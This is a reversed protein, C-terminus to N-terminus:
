ASGGGLAAEQADLRRRNAAIQARKAQNSGAPWMPTGDNYHGIPAPAEFPARGGGRGGRGGGNRGGRGGGRGLGTGWAFGSGRGANSPGAVNTGGGQAANLSAGKNNHSFGKKNFPQKRVGANARAVFETTHRATNNHIIIAHEQLAQLSSWKHGTTPNILCASRLRETLGNFFFQILDTEASKPEGARVVLSNFFRVYETAAQNAQMSVKHLQARAKLHRDPHAFTTLLTNVFMEWTLTQNARRAPMAVATWASLAKDTLLHTAHMHWDEKPIRCGSLYGEFRFIAEEVDGASKDGSFKSPEPLKMFAGRAGEAGGGSVVPNIAVPNNGGATVAAFTPAATFAHALAPTPAPVPAIPPAPAQIPAPAQTPAPAPVAAAALAAAPAHAAHQAEAPQQQHQQAAAENAPAESEWAGEDQEEGSQEEEWGEQQRQLQQLYTHISALATELQQPAAALKADVGKMLQELNRVTNGLDFLMSSHAGYTNLQAAIGKVAMRNPLNDAAEKDLRAKVAELAEALSGSTAQLLAIAEFAEELRKAHHGHVAQDARAMRLLKDMAPALKAVEALCYALQGAADQPSPFGRAIFNLGVIDDLPLMDSGWALVRRAAKSNRDLLARLLQKGQRDTLMSTLPPAPLQSVEPPPASEARPALDAMDQDEEEAPAAEKGPTDRKAKKSSGQGAEQQQKGKM